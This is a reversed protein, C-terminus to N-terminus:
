FAPPAIRIELATLGEIEVRLADGAVVPGVGAPTGTFILDGAEIRYLQSLFSVINAVPWILDKLDADQRTEGNVLMRIAGAELHGVDSAKHITGIPASNAFNKGPDWPRGTKRAVMQLDRRTLDLGTAYGFVHGLAEDPTLNIGSKGIAVVLEAEHHFDDTAAPYHATGGSPLITEAWKTFFFPPERDPDAGMEVVHDRYNRGVCFIRRVPFGLDDGFVDVIPLAPIEFRLTM